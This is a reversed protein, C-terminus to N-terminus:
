GGRPVPGDPGRRRLAVAVRLGAGLRRTDSQSITLSSSAFRGPAQGGGGLQGVLDEHHVGPRLVAGAVQGGLEDGADEVKGPDIVEGRGAILAQPMRGALPDDPEVGVVPEVLLVAAPQARKQVTQPAPVDSVHHLTMADEAQRRVRGDHVVDPNKRVVGGNAPAVPDVLLDQGRESPQADLHAPRVHDNVVVAVV